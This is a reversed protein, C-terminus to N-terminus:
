NIGTCCPLSVTVFYSVYEVRTERVGREDLPPIRM